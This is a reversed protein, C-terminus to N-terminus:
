KTLKEYDIRWKSKEIWKKSTEWLMTRAPKLYLDNLKNIFSRPLTEKYFHEYVEIYVLTPKVWSLGTNSNLELVWLKGDGDVIVDMSWVGLDIENRFIEKMAHLKDMFPVKKEDQEVYVFDLSEDAKKSEITNRQIREDITIIKDKVLVVRFENKIEIFESFTDFKNKSAKLDKVTKFVEIGIGSHGSAPKAVIPFKINDVDDITFVTKPIFDNTFKKHFKDKAAVERTTAPTNYFNKDKLKNDTLFKVTADEHASYLVIPLDTSIEKNQLPDQDLFFADFLEELVTRKLAVRPEDGAMHVCGGNSIFIVKKFFDKDIEELLTWENFSVHENLNM